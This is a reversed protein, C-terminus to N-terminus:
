EKNKKNNNRESGGSREEEEAEEVRNHELGDPKPAHAIKVWDRKKKFFFNIKRYRFKSICLLAREGGGKGSFFYLLVREGRDIVGSNMSNLMRWLGATLMFFDPSFPLLPLPMLLLPAVVAAVVAPAVVVVLAVMLVIVFVEPDELLAARAPGIKGELSKDNDEETAWSWFGGIFAVPPAPFDVPLEM